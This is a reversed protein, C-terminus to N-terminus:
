REVVAAAEQLRSESGFANQRHWGLYVRHLPTLKIPVKWQLAARGEESLAPSLRPTGNDEFTVLGRDFAADWLASLLLGNHPRTPTCSRTQFDIDTYLTGVTRM